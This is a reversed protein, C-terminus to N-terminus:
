LSNLDAALSGGQGSGTSYIPNERERESAPAVAVAMAAAATAIGRFYYVFCSKSWESKGLFFFGSADLQRFLRFGSISTVIDVSESSIMIQDITEPPSQGVM